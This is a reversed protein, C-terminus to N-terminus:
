SPQNSHTAHEDVVSRILQEVARAAELALRGVDSEGNSEYMHATARLYEAEQICRAVVLNM